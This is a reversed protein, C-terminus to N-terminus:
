RGAVLARAACYARLAALATFRPGDFLMTCGLSVGDQAAALGAAARAAATRDDDFARGLSDNFRAVQAPDQRVACGTTALLAALLVFRTIPM